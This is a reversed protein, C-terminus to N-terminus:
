SGKDSADCFVCPNDDLVRCDASKMCRFYLALCFHFRDTAVCGATKKNLVFRLVTKLKHFQCEVWYFVDEKIKELTPNSLWAMGIVEGSVRVCAPFDEALEEVASVFRHSNLYNAGNFSIM